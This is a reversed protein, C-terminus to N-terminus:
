LAAIALRRRRSALGLLGFGTVLLAWSAPEPVAGGGGGAPTTVSVGTGIAQGNSFAIATFSDTSGFKTSGNPGGQGDGNKFNFLDTYAQDIASQPSGATDIATIDAILTDEDTYPFLTGFAIGQAYAVFANNTFVVLHQQGAADDPLGSTIGLLVAGTLPQTEVFPNTITTTGVGAYFGASNTVSGGNANDELLTIDSVAYTPLVFTYNQYFPPYRLTDANAAGALLGSAAAALLTFRM